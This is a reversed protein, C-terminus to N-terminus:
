YRPSGGNSRGAMTAAAVLGAAVTGLLVRTRRKRAFVVAVVAVVAGVPLARDALSGTAGVGFEPRAPPTFHRGEAPSSPAPEPEPEPEIETMVGAAGHEALPEVEVAEAAVVEAEDAFGSPLDRAAAAPAATPADPAPPAPKAARADPAKPAAKAASARASAPKASAPKAATPKPAAGGAV